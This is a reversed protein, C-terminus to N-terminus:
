SSTALLRITAREIRAFRETHDDMVTWEHLTRAELAEEPQLRTAGSWHLELRAQYRDAGMAVCELGALTHSSMLMRRSLARYWASFEERTRIVTPAWDLEFPDALLEDFPAADGTNRDILYLWHHALSRLRHEAASALMLQTREEVHVSAFPAEPRAAPVAPQSSADLESSAAPGSSAASESLTALESSVDPEARAATVHSAESHAEILEGNEDFLRIVGAGRGWLQRAAESGQWPSPTFRSYVAGSVARQDPGRVFQIAFRKYGLGRLRRHEVPHFDQVETSGNPHIVVCLTM